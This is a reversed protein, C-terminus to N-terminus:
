PSATDQLEPLPPLVVPVGRKFQSWVLERHVQGEANVSLKGSYGSVSYNPFYRLKSLDPILNYSDYGLAYLRATVGQSSDPWVTELQRFDTQYNNNQEILLPIDAFIVKNLDNDVTPQMVGQNINANAFLTLDHAYYFDIFPKIRRAATADAVFYIFDVDQRRRAQFEMTVGALQQLRSHRQTSKDVGLLAQVAKAYDESNQYKVIGQIQHEEDNFINEFAIAAREGQANNPVLLLGRKLGSRKVHDAALAVEDEIPLGFQYFNEPFIVEEQSTLKNIALTPITLSESLSLAQVAEQEIPGLVFGAGEEVAQNYLALIDQEHTDYFVLNIDSSQTNEYHATLIGRRIHEVAGALPGTTPLLVAITNPDYAQVSMANALDLPLSQQAIHDSYQGKWIELSRILSEPEAAFQKAITVLDLWGAVERSNLSNQFVQPNPLTMLTQWLIEKVAEQELIDDTLRLEAMREKASEFYRNLAYLSDGFTRHYNRQQAISMMAPDLVRSFQSLAIDHRDAQSFSQGMLAHYRDRFIGQPNSSQVQQLIELSQASRRTELLVESAQFLWDIRIDGESRRANNIYAQAKDLSEDTNSSIKQTSPCGALMVLSLLAVLRSIVYKNMQQTNKM